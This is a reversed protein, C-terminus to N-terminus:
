PLPAPLPAPIWIASEDDGYPVARGDLVEAGVWACIISDILDEVGKLTRTPADTPPLPVIERVGIIQHDLAGLITSWQSLLEARRQPVTLLPWYSRVKGAKYPLRRDARLLEILAPHPYVEILGKSVTRKVQLPYGQAAFQDRLRDSIAGPRTANPTHTSAHRSGYAASVANDSVRRTTISSRALPMDVAVISVPTLSLIHAAELLRAADPLHSDHPVGALACFAAYSSAAAVLRWAGSADDLLAVGSPNAITWAADIGLVARGM